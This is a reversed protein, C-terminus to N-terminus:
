AKAVSIMGCGFAKAPGAGNIMVKKVFDEPKNITLMGKYAVTYITGFHFNGAQNKVFRIPFSEIIQCDKIFATKDREIIKKLWQIMVQEKTLSKEIDKRLPVRVNGRNTQKGGKKLRKSPYARLFFQLEQNKKLCNLSERINKTQFLRLTKHCMKRYVSALPLEPQIVSQCLILKKTAKGYPNEMRYFFPSKIKDQSESNSSIKANEFFRWLDKHLQYYNVPKQSELIFRSLFM